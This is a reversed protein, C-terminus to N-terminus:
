KKIKQNIMIADTIVFPKPMMTPSRKPISFLPNDLLYFSAEKVEMDLPTKAEIEFELELPTNDIVYYRLIKNDDRKYKTGKQQDAQVGNAKFHHLIMNKHAFVDYRNIAENPTIKIKLFRKNNKISDKLFTITSKKIDKVPADAIFTFGSNYKSSITNKNLEDANRPNEGLYAKTWSDLNIDFTTWYAKHSDADFYYLLSNPKAKGPKYDANSHADILFGSAVILLLIFVRKKELFSEFVPLLLAFCLVTLIASIYLIKLGLGIPFTQIFPAIIVISPIAMILNLYVNIEKKIVFYGLIALGAFVPVILFAAGKLYFAIFGNLIIWLILPAIFHSMITKQTTWRKYMYFCIALSLFVFAYIYLHGNYTFGHLIDQYQPYIFLVTKWLLFSGLGATFLSALLPLFGEGIAKLTIIKKQKGFYIFVLLLLLAVLLMPLIWAFPYHIFGLPTNFYVDDQKSNLQNLDASAFYPLLASLYTGQHAITTPNVHAFDDQATHYNFHNDIFAFNFGQIKGQERFVTL